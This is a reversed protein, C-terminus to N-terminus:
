TTIETHHKHASLMREHLPFSAIIVSFINPVVM